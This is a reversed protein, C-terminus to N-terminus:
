VIEESVELDQTDDARSIMRFLFSGSFFWCSFCLRLDSM